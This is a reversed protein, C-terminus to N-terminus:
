NIIKIIKLHLQDILFVLIDQPDYFLELIRFYSFNSSIVYVLIRWFLPFKGGKLEATNM